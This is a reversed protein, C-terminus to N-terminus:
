RELLRAVEHAVASAGVDGMVITYHNVDPVERVRMAPLEARWREIESPSYLGPAENLLGRPATLLSLSRGQGPAGLRRDELASQVVGGGFQDLSDQRVAELSTSPRLAPETGTLDYDVYDAV